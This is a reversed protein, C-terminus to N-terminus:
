DNLKIKTKGRQGFFVLSILIPISVNKRRNPDDRINKICAPNAM